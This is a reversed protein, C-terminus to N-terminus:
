RLEAIAEHPVRVAAIEWDNAQARRRETEARPYYFRVLADAFGVDSEPVIVYLADREGAERAPLISALDVGTRGIAPAALWDLDHGPQPFNQSGILYTYAEQGE